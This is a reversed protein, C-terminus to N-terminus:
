RGRGQRVELEARGAASIRFRPPWSDAGGEREIWGHRLLVRFTASPVTPTLGSGRPILLIRKAWPPMSLMGGEALQELLHRQTRTPRVGRGPPEATM